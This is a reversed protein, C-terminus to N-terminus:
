IKSRFGVCAYSEIPRMGNFYITNLFFLSLAWDLYLKRKMEVAVSKRFDKSVIVYFVGSFYNKIHSEWTTGNKAGNQVLFLFM